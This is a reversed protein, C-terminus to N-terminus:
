GAWEIFPDHCGLRENLRLTGGFLNVLPFKIKRQYLLSFAGLIKPLSSPFFAALWDKLAGATVLSSSRGRVERGVLVHEESRPMMGCGNLMDLALDQSYRTLTLGDLRDLSTASAHPRSLQGACRISLIHFVKSNLPIRSTFTTANCSFVTLARLVCKGCKQSDRHFCHRAFSRLM